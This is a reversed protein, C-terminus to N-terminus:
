RSSEERAPANLHEAPEEGTQKLEDSDRGRSQHTFYRLVEAYGWGTAGNAAWSDFDGPHGRVYVMYNIGSSGGLMRGRPM